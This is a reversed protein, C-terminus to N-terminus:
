VYKDLRTPGPQVHKSLVDDDPSSASRHAGDSMEALFAPKKDDRQKKWRRLALANGQPIPLVTHDM